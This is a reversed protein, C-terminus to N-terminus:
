VPETAARKLAAVRRVDAGVDSSTWVYPTDSLTLKFEAGKPVARVILGGLYPYSGNMILLKTKGNWGALDLSDVCILDRVDGEGRLQIKGSVWTGDPSCRAPGDDVPSKTRSLNVVFGDAPTLVRGRDADTLIYDTLAM